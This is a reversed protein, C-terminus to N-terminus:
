TPARPSSSSSTAHRGAYLLPHRSDLLDERRRLPHHRRRSTLDPNAAPLPDITLSRVPGFCNPDALVCDHYVAQWYYTGPKNPWNTDSGPGAKYVIPSRKRQSRGLLQRDPELAGRRLRDRRRELRLLGHPRAPPHRGTRARFAIQDVRATFTRGDTPALPIPDALAEPAGALALGAVAGVIALRAKVICGLDVEGDRLLRRPRAPPRRPAAPLLRARAWAEPRTPAESRARRRSRARARSRPPSPLPPAVPAPAAESRARPGSATGGVCDRPRTLKAGEEPLGRPPAPARRPGPRAAIRACREALAARPEPVSAVVPSAACSGSVWRRPDRRLAHGGRRGPVRGRRGREAQPARAQGPGRGSGTAPPRRPRRAAGGQESDAAADRGHELELRWEGKVREFRSLIRTQHRAADAAASALTRAPLRTALRDRQDPYFSLATGIEVMPGSGWPRAWDAPM